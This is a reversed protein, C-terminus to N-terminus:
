EAQLPEPSDSPVSSTVDSPRSSPAVSPMPSQSPRLSPRDSPRSSPAQTTTPVASPVDSPQHSPAKSVTPYASPSVSPQTSPSTSVTPFASPSESPQASPSKSVTPAASPTASPLLSPSMSVTPEFSVSPSLSPSESPQRSPSMSVSPRLSPQGSPSKTPGVTPRSTPAETYSCQNAFTQCSGDTNSYVGDCFAGTTSVLNNCAMNGQFAIGNNTFVAPGDTTAQNGEFHSFNISSQGVGPSFYCIAGGREATNDVFESSTVSLKGTTFVAGGNVAENNRFISNDLLTISGDVARVASGNGQLNLNDEFISSFSEFRGDKEVVVASSTSGRITMGDLKFTSFEKVEFLTNPCDIVCADGSGFLFSGCIVHLNSRVQYANNTSADSSKCAEGKIEVPCIIAFPNSTAASEISVDLVRILEDWTPEDLEECIADIGSLHAAFLVVFFLVIRDRFLDMTNRRKNKWKM